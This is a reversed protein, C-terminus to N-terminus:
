GRRRQVGSAGACIRRVRAPLSSTLGKLKKMKKQCTAAIDKQVGEIRERDLQDRLDTLADQYVHCRKEAKSCETDAKKRREEAETYQEHLTEILGELQEIRDLLRRKDEQLESILVQVAANFVTESHVVDTRATGSPFHHLIWRKASVVADDSLKDNRPKATNLEVVEGVNKRISM